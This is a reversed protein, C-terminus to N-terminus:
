PYEQALHDILQQRETDDLRAGRLIMRGVTIEWGEPSKGAERVLDLDHCSDCRSELLKEGDPRGSSCGVLLPIGLLSLILCINLLQRRGLPRTETMM